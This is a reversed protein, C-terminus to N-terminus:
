LGHIYTYIYIYIYIHRLPQRPQPSTGAVHFCPQLLCPELMIIELCEIGCSNHLGHKFKMFEALDMNVGVMNERRRVHQRLRHARPTQRIRPPSPIIIIIIITMLLMTAIMLIMVTTMIM